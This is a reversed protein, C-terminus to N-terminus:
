DQYQRFVKVVEVSMGTRQPNKFDMGEFDRNCDAVKGFSDIHYGMEKLIPTLFKTDPKHPSNELNARQRKAMYGNRM